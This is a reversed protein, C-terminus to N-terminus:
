GTPAMILMKAAQRAGIYAAAGAILALVGAIASGQDRFFEYLACHM